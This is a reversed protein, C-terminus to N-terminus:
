ACILAPFIHILKHKSPLSAFEPKGSSLSHELYTATGYELQEAYQGGRGCAM